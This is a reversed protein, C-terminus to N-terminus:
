ADDMAMIKEAPTPSGSFIYDCNRSKYNSKHKRDKQHWPFLTFNEMFKGLRMEKM